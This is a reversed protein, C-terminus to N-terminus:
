VLILLAISKPRISYRGTAIVDRYIMAALLYATAHGLSGVLEHIDPFTEWQASGAVLSAVFIAAAAPLGYRIMLFLSVAAPTYWASIGFKVALIAALNWLAVWVVSWAAIAAGDRLWSQRGIRLASPWGRADDRAQLGVSM